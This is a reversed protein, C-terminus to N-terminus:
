ILQEKTKGLLRCFAPNVYRVIHDAGEVTAMPLPVREALCLWLNSWDTPENGRVPTPLPRM